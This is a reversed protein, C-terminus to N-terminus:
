SLTGPSAPICHERRRTRRSIGEQHIPRRSRKKKERRLKKNKKDNMGEEENVTRMRGEDSM